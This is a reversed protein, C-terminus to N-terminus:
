TLLLQIEIDSILRILDAYKFYEKPTDITKGFELSFDCKFVTYKKGLPFTPNINNYLYVFKDM